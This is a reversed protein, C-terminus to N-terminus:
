TIVGGKPDPPLEPELKPDFDRMGLGPSWRNVLSAMSSHNAIDLKPGVEFSAFCDSKVVRVIKGNLIHLTLIRYNSFGNNMECILTRAIGTFDTMSEEAIPQAKSPKSM